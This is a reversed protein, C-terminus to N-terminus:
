NESNKQETKKPKVKKEKEYLSHGTNKKEKASSLKATFHKHKLSKKKNELTHNHKPPLIFTKM